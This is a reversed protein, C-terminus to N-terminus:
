PTLANPCTSKEPDESNDGQLPEEGSTVAKGSSLEDEPLTSSKKSKISPQKEPVEASFSEMAGSLKAQVYRRYRIHLWGTLILGLVTLSLMIIFVDRVCIRGHCKGGEGVTAVDVYRDYLEGFTFRNLILIALMTAVSMLNYHKAVDRSYLTRVTLAIAAAYCGNAFGNLFFPVALGNPPVTLFLIYEIIMLVPAVFYSTTILTREKIAGRQTRVEYFSMLIRGLGSGLGHLSVYLTNLREDFSEAIAEYIQPVNDNVVLEAGEVCFGVFFLIWLDPTLLNRWFSTVYPPSVVETIRERALKEKRFTCSAFPLPILIGVTSAVLVITVVAVAIRTEQNVNVFAVVFNVSFLIVLILLVVVLGYYFRYIPPKQLLFVDETRELEEKKEKSYRWRQWGVLHYPPLEQLILNMGGFVFVFATLFFYFDTYKGLFFCVYITSLISSGLGTMTKLLGVVHGRNRPFWTLVTVLSGLDFTTCGINMIAYFVSYNVVTGEIHDLFTFAILLTGLCFFVVSICLVPKPGAFDFLAGYPLLFQGFMSGVTTITTLEKQSFNHRERIYAGVLGFGFMASVCIGAFLAAFLLTFRHFESIPKGHVVEPRTVDESTVETDGHFSPISSVEEEFMVEERM